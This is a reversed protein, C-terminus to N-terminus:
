VTGTLYIVYGLFVVSLCMPHFITQAAKFELWQSIHYMLFKIIFFM